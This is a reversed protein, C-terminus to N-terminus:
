FDSIANGEADDCIAKFEEYKTQELITIQRGMLNDRHKIIVKSGKLGQYMNGCTFGLSLKDSPRRLSLTPVSASRLSPM